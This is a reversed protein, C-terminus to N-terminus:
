NTSNLANRSKWTDFRHGPVKSTEAGSGWKPLFGFSTQTGLVLKPWFTAIRNGSKPRCCHWSSFSICIYKLILGKYLNCYIKLKRIALQWCGELPLLRKFTPADRQCSFLHKFIHNNIQPLITMYSLWFNKFFCYNLSCCINEGISHSPLSRM